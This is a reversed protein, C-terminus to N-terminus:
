EFNRLLRTIEDQDKDKLVALGLRVLESQNTKRRVPKIATVAAKVWEEDTADVVYLRKRFSSQPSTLGRGLDNREEDSLRQRRKQTAQELFQKKNKM